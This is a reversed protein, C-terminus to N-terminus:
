DKSVTVDKMRSLVNSELSKVARVNEFEAMRSYRDLGSPGSPVDLVLWLVDNFSFQVKQAGSMAMKVCADILPLGMVEIRDSPNILMLAVCFGRGVSILMDLTERANNMIKLLSSESAQFNSKKNESGGITALLAVVAAQRVSDVPDDLLKTTTRILENSLASLENGLGSSMIRRIACAAGHRMEADKTCSPLIDEKMVDMTIDVGLLKCSEGMVKAASSRIGEDSANLVLDKAAELASPISAPLKAKDGGKLLVAALAELTATQVAAAAVGDELSITKGMSGSVLEKILPDVRTSLPMLLSLAAIAEIRVQRSPDSLAKVFRSQFLCLNSLVPQFLSNRSIYARQKSSLSSLM